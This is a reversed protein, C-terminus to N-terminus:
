PCGGKWRLDISCTHALLRAAEGVGLLTDLGTSGGISALRRADERRCRGDPLRLMRCLPESAYGRRLADLESGGYLTTRPLLPLLADLAQEVLQEREAVWMRMAAYFGTLFDDGSPTLGDGLGVLGRAAEDLVEIEADLWGRRLQRIADLARGYLGPMPGPAEAAWGLPLLLPSFGTERRCSQLVDAIVELVIDWESPLASIPCLEMGEWLPIDAMNLRINFGLALRDEQWSVAMGPRLPAGREFLAQCACGFPTPINDRQLTVALGGCQIGVAKSFIGVIEGGQRLLPLALPSCGDLPFTEM